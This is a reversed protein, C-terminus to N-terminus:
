ACTSKKSVVCKLRGWFGRKKTKESGYPECPGRVNDTSADFVRGGMKVFSPPALSGINDVTMVTAQTSAFSPVRALTSAASRGLDISSATRASGAATTCASTLIGFNDVSLASAQTSGDSSVRTLSTRSTDLSASSEHVDPSALLSASLRREDLVTLDFSITSGPKPMELPSPATPTIASSKRKSKLSSLSFTRKKRPRKEDTAATPPTLPHILSVVVSRRSTTSRISGTDAPGRPLQGFDEPIASAQSASSCVSRISSPASATSNRRSARVPMVVAGSGLGARSFIPAPQHTLWDTSNTVPGSPSKSLSSSSSSPSLPSCPTKRAWDPMSPLPPTTSHQSQRADRLRSQIGPDSAVKPHSSSLRLHAAASALDSGSSIRNPRARVHADPSLQRVISGQRSLSPGALPSSRLPARTRDSSHSSMLRPRPPQMM